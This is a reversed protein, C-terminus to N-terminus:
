TDINVPPMTKLHEGIAKAIAATLRRAERPPANTFAGIGVYVVYGDHMSHRGDISLPITAAFALPPRIGREVDGVRGTEPTVIM